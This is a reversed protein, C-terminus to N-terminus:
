RNHIKLSVEIDINEEALFRGIEDFKYGINERSHADSSLIFRGGESAIYRIIDFSPYPQSRYGRSIAGTNIEFPIGYKLLEDAAARSAKVYRPDGPDFFECHENFKTILDFHGIIDCKTKNIVDSVLRYYENILAYIDGGFYQDRIEALARPSEDVSTYGCGTKLDHVSGISYDFPKAPLPAYYDQEVGCYIDIQGRYKEKLAAISRRYSATQQRGMCWDADQPAYSHGSFGIATFGKEIASKVMDEPSDKGDCYYTHMHFDSLIM